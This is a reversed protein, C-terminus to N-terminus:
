AGALVDREGEGAPRGEDYRVAADAVGEGVGGVGQAAPLALLRGAKETFVKWMDLGKPVDGRPFEPEIFRHERVGHATPGAVDDVLVLADDARGGEQPGGVEFAEATQEVRGVVAQPVVVLHRARLQVAQHIGRARPAVGEAATEGAGSEAAACDVEHPGAALLRKGGRQGAGVPIGEPSGQGDMHAIRRVACPM